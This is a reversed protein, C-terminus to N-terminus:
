CPFCDTKCESVRSLNIKGGLVVNLDADNLVKVTEKALVLKRAQPRTTKKM